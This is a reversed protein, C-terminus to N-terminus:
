NFDFKLNQYFNSKQFKNFRLKIEDAYSAAYAIEAAHRGADFTRAGLM